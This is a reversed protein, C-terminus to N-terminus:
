RAVALLIHEARKRWTYRETVERHANTVLKEYLDRNNALQEITKALQTPDSPPVFLATEGDTLVEKLSPLNTVIIPRMSAMYEFIKLPSMYWRYHEIDPFPAVLIDCSSMYLPVLTHTIKGAFIIRKLLDREQAYAKYYEIDKEEGGVVFLKYKIPLFVLADIATSVGKEMGMTKLTGVYGFLVDDSSLNLNKRAESVPLQDLFNELRVADPAIFIKEEPVGETVLKSRIFSTLVVIGEVCGYVYRHLCTIKKPLSHLELFVRRFLGAAYIERTYLLDYKTFFVYCRAMFLFSLFRVWYLVVSATGHRIDVVPLRVINFNSKIGYYAFPDKAVLFKRRPVVLTVEAGNAAFAECMSMIQVAHAWDDLLGANALYILKM